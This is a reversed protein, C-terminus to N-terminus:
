VLLKLSVSDFSLYIFLPPISPPLPPPPSEAMEHMLTWPWPRCDKTAKHPSLRLLDPLFDIMHMDKDFIKRIWCITWINFTMESLQNWYETAHLMRERGQGTKQSTSRAPLFSFYPLSLEEGFKTLIPWISFSNQSTKKNTIEANNALNQLSNM